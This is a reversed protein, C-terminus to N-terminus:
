DRYGANSKDFLGAKLPAPEEGALLAIEWAYAELPLRLQARQLAFLPDAQLDSWAVRALEPVELSWTQVVWEFFREGGIARAASHSAAWESRAITGPHPLAVTDAKATGGFEERARDGTALHWATEIVRVTRSHRLLAQARALVTPASTAAIRLLQDARTLDNGGGLFVVVDPVDEAIESELRDIMQRSTTGPVGLNVVEVDAVAVSFLDRLQDPYSRGTPAGIGFTNSDGLCVVRTAGDGGSAPRAGRLVATGVVRAGVALTLEMSIFGLAIRLPWSLWTRAGIRTM